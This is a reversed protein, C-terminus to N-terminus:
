YDLAKMAKGYYTDSSINKAAARYANKAESGMANVKDSLAVLSETLYHDSSLNAAAKLLQMVQAEKLELRSAEKIVESAYHGSNVSGIAEVFEEM